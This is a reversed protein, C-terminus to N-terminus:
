IGGTNPQGHAWGSLDTVDPVDTVAEGPQQPKKARAAAAAATVVPALERNRSWLQMVFAVVDSMLGSKAEKGELRKEVKSFFPIRHGVHALIRALLEVPERGTSDNNTVLGKDADELTGVDLPTGIRQATRSRLADLLFAAIAEHV